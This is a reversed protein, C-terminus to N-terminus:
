KPKKHAKPLQKPNEKPIKILRRSYNRSKERSKRSDKSTKQFTKPIRNLHKVPKILSINPYRSLDRIVWFYGMFLGFIVWSFGFVCM